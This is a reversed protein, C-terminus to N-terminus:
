ELSVGCAPRPLPPVLDQRGDGTKVPDGSQGDHVPGDAFQRDTWGAM